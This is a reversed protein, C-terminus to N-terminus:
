RPRGRYLKLRRASEPLRRTAAAPLEVVPSMRGRPLSSRRGAAGSPRGPLVRRSREGLFIQRADVGEVPLARREAADELDIGVRQRDGVLEVGFSLRAARAARQVANRDHDLVVDGGGVAHHRRGSREREHADRRGFVREDDRPQSVGAGDDEALRVQALPGVEPRRVGRAAPARAAALRLFGYASSRLGDPELEPEATATAAFRAAAATPVSVSRTSRTARAPWSREDADLRRDAEEAPAPMMGIAWLWSVGARHRAGDGVGGRQEARHRPRIRGILRRHACVPAGVVVRRKEVRVAQLPARM